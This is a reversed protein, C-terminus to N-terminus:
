FQELERELKRQEREAEREDRELQRDLEEAEADAEREAQEAERELEQQEADLEREAQDAEQELQQQDADLEKELRGKTDGTIDACASGGFEECYSVAEQGCFEAGYANRVCEVGLDAESCAAVASIAATAFLVRM